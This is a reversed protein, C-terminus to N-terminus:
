FVIIFSFLNEKYQIVRVAQASVKSLSGALCLGRQVSVWLVLGGPSVGRSLSEGSLSGGPGGTMHGTICAPVSVGETFLIVCLHLFM